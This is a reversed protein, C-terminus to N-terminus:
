LNRMQNNSASEVILGNAFVGYNSFDCKNELAFHYIDFEGTPEYLTTRKDLCAPIRYKKDTVFIDGLMKLVNSRDDDSFENVDVLISHPGTIVLDSFLTPFEPSMNCVYLKNNTREKDGNNFIKSQKIYTIPSYKTESITKVLDGIRLNQVSVYVEKNEKTILIKTDKLFCMLLIWYIYTTDSPYGNTTDTQLSQSTSNLQSFNEIPQLYTVVLSEVGDFVTDGFTTFTSPDSWTLSTLSTCNLFCSLKLTTLTSPITINNLALCGSFCLNGIISITSTSLTITHLATCYRFCSNPLSTILSPISISTLSSCYEFCNYSIRSLTTPLTINTLSSCSQFCNGSLSIISTPLTVTALNTCNKFTSDDLETIFIANIMSISILNNNNRFLGLTNNKIKTVNYSPDADTPINVFEPITVNVFSDDYGTVYCETGNISYEIGNIIRITSM